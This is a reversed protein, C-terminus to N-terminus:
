QYSRRLLLDLTEECRQKLVAYIHTHSHPERSAQLSISREALSTLTLHEQSLPQLTSHSKFLLHNNASTYM